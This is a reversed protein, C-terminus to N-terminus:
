EFWLKPLNTTSNWQWPSTTNTGFSWGMTSRWFNQNNYQGTGTGASVDAGDKGTTTKAPTWTDGTKVTMNSRAYNNTLTGNSGGTV